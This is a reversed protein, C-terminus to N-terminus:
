QFAWKPRVGFIGSYTVSVVRRFGLMQVTNGMLIEKDQNVSSPKRLIAFAKM